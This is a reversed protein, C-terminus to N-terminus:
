KKWAESSSDNSNRIGNLNDLYRSLKLKEDSMSKAVPKQFCSPKPIKGSNNWAFKEGYNGTEKAKTCLDKVPCGSCDECEYIRTQTDYGQKTKGHKTYKYVM